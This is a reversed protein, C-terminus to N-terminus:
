AAAEEDQGETLRWVADQLELLLESTIFGTTAIGCAKRDLEGDAWIRAAEAATTCAALRTRFDAIYTSITM